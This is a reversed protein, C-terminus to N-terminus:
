RSIHNLTRSFYLQIKVLFHAGVCINEITEACIYLFNKSFRGTTSEAKRPKPLVTTVDNLSDTILLLGM